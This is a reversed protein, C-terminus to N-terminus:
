RLSLRRHRRPYHPCLGLSHSRMVEVPSVATSALLVGDKLILSTSVSLHAHAHAHRTCWLHPGGARPATEGQMTGSGPSGSLRVPRTRIPRAAARPAARERAPSRRSPGCSTCGSWSGARLWAAPQLTRPARSPRTTSACCGRSGATAATRTSRCTYACRCRYLPSGAARLRRSARRNRSGGRGECRHGSPRGGASAPTAARGCTSSRALPPTRM